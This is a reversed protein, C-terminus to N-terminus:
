HHELPTDKAHYEMGAKKLANAAQSLTSKLQGKKKLSTRIDELM